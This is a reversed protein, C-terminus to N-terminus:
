QPAISHLKVPPPARTNWKSAPNIHTVRPGKSDHGVELIKAISKARLIQHKKKRLKRARIFCVMGLVFVGAVLGITIAQKFACSCNNTVTDYSCDYAVPCSCNHDGSVCAIVSASAMSARSLLWLFGVVVSPPPPRAMSICHTNKSLIAGLAACFRFDLVWQLIWELVQDVKEDFPKTVFATSLKGHDWTIKLYNQGYYTYETYVCVGTSARTVVAWLCAGKQLWQSVLYHFFLIKRENMSTSGITMGSSVLQPICKSHGPDCVSAQHAMHLDGAILHVSPISKSSLLTWLQDVRQRFLFHGPYFEKDFTEALAGSTESHFFLPLPSLVVFHSANKALTAEVFSLQTKSMLENSKLTLGREFRTDAFVLELQNKGLSVAHYVPRYLEGRSTSDFAKPLDTIDGLLQYQYEYFAQLGARAFTNYTAFVDRSWNNIIDHDDIMMYHAGRRLVQQVAPRGFGRRYLGRFARLASEFPAKQFNTVLDDAYIQDGMHITGFYSPDDQIDQALTKWHSDDVDQLFRDCSLSVLTLKEIAIDLPTTRFQASGRITEGLAITVAYTSNPKLDSYALAYPYARYQHHSKEEVVHEGDLWLTVTLDSMKDTVLPEYVVRASSSTVSGVIVLMDMQNRRLEEETPRGLAKLDLPSQGAVALCLAAVMTLWMM